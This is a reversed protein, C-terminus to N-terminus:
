VGRDIASQPYRFNESFYKLRAEEGGPFKPTEERQIFIDDSKKETTQSYCFSSGYFILTLVCFIKKMKKNKTGILNARDRM